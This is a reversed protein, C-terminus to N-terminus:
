KEKWLQAVLRLRQQPTENPFQSINRKVFESYATKKTKKPKKLDIVLGHKKATRRLFQKNEESLAHWMTCVKKNREAFGLGKLEPLAKTRRLFVAFSSVSIRKKTNSSLLCM